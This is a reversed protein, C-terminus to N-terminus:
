EETNGSSQRYVIKRRETTRATLESGCGDLTPGASLGRANKKPSNNGGQGDTQVDGPSLRRHWLLRKFEAGSTDNGTKWRPV